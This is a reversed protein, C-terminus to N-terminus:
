LLYFFYINKTKSVTAPHNRYISISLLNNLYDQLQTIRIDLKEIPVLIEPKKPFRPLACQRKGKENKPLNNKFSERKRRHTKTPFPINLSARFVALQQHM